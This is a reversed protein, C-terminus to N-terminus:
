TGCRGPHDLIFVDTPVLFYSWGIFFKKFFLFFLLQFFEGWVSNPGVKIVAGPGTCAPQGRKASDPIISSAPLGPIHETGPRWGVWGVEKKSIDGKM